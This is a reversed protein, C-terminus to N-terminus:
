DLIEVFHSTLIWGISGKYRVNSWKEGKSILQVVSGETLSSLIQNSDPRTYMATNELLKIKKLNSKDLFKSEVYGVTNVSRVKIWNNELGIVEVSTGQPISSFPVVKLMPLHRIGVTETTNKIDLIVPEPNVTNKSLRLRYFSNLSFILLFTTFILAFFSYLHRKNNSDINYIRKM